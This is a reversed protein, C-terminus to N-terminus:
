LTPQIVTSIWTKAESPNLYPWENTFLPIRYSSGKYEWHTKKGSSATEGAEASTSQSEGM